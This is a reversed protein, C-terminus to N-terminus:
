STQLFPETSAEQQLHSIEQEFSEGSMMKAFPRYMDLNEVNLLSKTKICKALSRIEHRRRKKHEDSPAARGKLLSGQNYGGGAFKALAKLHQENM